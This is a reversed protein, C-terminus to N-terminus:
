KESEPKRRCGARRHIARLSERTAPDSVSSLGEPDPLAPPPPLPEPLSIEREPVMSSGADVSFRVDKVPSDPGAAEAIRSLLLPKSLQLEQAWAHNRVTVTLVGNRFRSPM